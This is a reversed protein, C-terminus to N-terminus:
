GDMCNMGCTITGPQPPRGCGLVCVLGNFEIVVVDKADLPYAPFKWVSKGIMEVGYLLITVKNSHHSSISRITGIVSDVGTLEEGGKVAFRAEKG